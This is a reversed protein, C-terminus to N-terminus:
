DAALPHRLPYLSNSPVVQFGTMRSPNVVVPARLNVTAGGHDDVAVLALWLLPASATAGLRALDAPTLACRYDRLVLRPDIALFTPTQGDVGQLVQLPATADSALVVYRRCGEFGPLGEPFSLVDREDVEFDGFSTSLHLRAELREASAAQNM